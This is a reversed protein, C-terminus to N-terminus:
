ETLLERIRGDWARFDADNLHFEGYGTFRIKGRKDILV